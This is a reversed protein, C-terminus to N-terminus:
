IFKEIIWIIVVAGGVYMAIKKELENFRKDLNKIDESLHALHNTTIEDIKGELSKFNEELKTLRNETKISQKTM